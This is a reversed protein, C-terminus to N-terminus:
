SRRSKLSPFQILTPLRQIGHMEKALLEELKEKKDLNSLVCHLLYIYSINYMIMLLDMPWCKNESNSEEGMCSKQLSM